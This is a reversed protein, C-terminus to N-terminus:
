KLSNIISIIKEKVEKAINKLEDKNLDKILYEPDIFGVKVKDEDEYVAIKCPLFYGIKIDKELVEKAKYPNCVELITFNGDYAVGKEKLKDQYNMRWIVGFKSKELKEAIEDLADEYRKNVEIEYIFGEM